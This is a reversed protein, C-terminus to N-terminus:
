PVLTELLEPLSVMGDGSWGGGHELFFNAQDAGSSEDPHAFHYAGRILGANTAGEYHDSFTSDIYDLAETAKEGFDSSIM